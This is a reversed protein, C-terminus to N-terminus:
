FIGREVPLKLINGAKIMGDDLTIIKDVAMNSAIALHLADGARLSNDLRTLYHWTLDFDEAEPLVVHFHEILLLFFRENCLSATEKSLAGMRVLRSIVSAFEVRTWQSTVLPWNDPLNQFYAEVQESTEEPLLLPVLFSTDFYLM